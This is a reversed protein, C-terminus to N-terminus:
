KFVRVDNIDIFRRLCIVPGFVEKLWVDSLENCNELVTPYCIRDKCLGRVLVNAGEFIAADIWKQVRTVANQNILSSLLVSENEPSGVEVKAIESLLLQKFRDYISDHVYCRQVSICTQGAYSFGGKITAKCAAEINATEDVIVGAVGGCELLVRKNYAKQLLLQGVHDSGTFSIVKVESHLCLAEATQDLCNVFQVVNKSIGSMLLANMLLRSTMPKCFPKLIFVNRSVLTPILKRLM